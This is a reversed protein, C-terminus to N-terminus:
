IECLGSPPVTPPVQTTSAKGGDFLDVDDEECKNEADVRYQPDASGNLTSFLGSGPPPGPPVDEVGGYSGDVYRYTYSASVEGPAVTLAPETPVADEGAAPSHLALLRGGKTLAVIYTKGEAEYPYLDILESAKEVFKVPLMGGRTTLQGPVSATLNVQVTAAGPPLAYPSANVMLGAWKNHQVAM